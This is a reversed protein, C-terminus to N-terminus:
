KPMLRARLLDYTAQSIVKGSEKIVVSPKGDAGIVRKEVLIGDPTFRDEGDVRGGAKGMSTSFKFGGAEWPEGSFEGEGEFECNSCTIKAKRGEPKVVTLVEQAPTSGRLSIVSEDIRGQARDVTRKILTVSAPLDRGGATQMTSEVLYYTVKPLDAACAAGCLLVFCVSRLTPM